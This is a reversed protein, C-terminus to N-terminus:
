ESGVSLGVMVQDTTHLQSKVRYILSIAVYLALVICSLIQAGLGADYLFGICSNTSTCSAIATYIGIFGLSMAHSSPMGKDSPKIKISSSYINSDNMNGNDNTNSNDDDFNTPRDQNLLKKLVKSSIGNLISGIFFTLMFSNRQYALVIFFTGAVVKSTSSGIKSLLASYSSSSAPSISDSESNAQKQAKMKMQNMSSLSPIFNSTSTIKPFHQHSHHRNQNLQITTFALSKTSAFIIVNWIFLLLITRMPM